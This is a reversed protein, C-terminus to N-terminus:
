CLTQFNTISLAPSVRGKTKARGATVSAAAVVAAAALTGAPAKVDGALFRACDGNRGFGGTAEAILARSTARPGDLSLGRSGRGNRPGGGYGYGGWYYNGWLTSGYLRGYDEDSETARGDDHLNM